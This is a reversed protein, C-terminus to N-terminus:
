CLNINLGFHFRQAALSNLCVKLLDQERTIAIPKDAAQAGYLDYIKKRKPDSLVEYAKKLEAYRDNAANQYYVTFISFVPCILSYNHM